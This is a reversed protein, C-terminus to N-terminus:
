QQAPRANGRAILRELLEATDRHVIAPGGARGRAGVGVAADSPTRGQKDKADLIAGRGALVTVVSNLGSRAAYHLATAGSDNVANVDAGHQLALQVANLMEPETGVDESFASQGRGLGSALMLANGGNKQVLSVDAGHALLIEMARYDGHMAARMLPTTGEGLVPDGPTHARTLTATKLRANADAGYDLLMAVIDLATRRDNVRRPPRGYVEGLSNMDVATYLPGMGVSDAINTDAGHEILVAATDFHANTIARVLATTQEPDVADLDAGAAALARAADAAGDRAAYMLPTWNGRPLFTLVGELGFRDKPFAVTKSRGNADAGREILLSVVAAHNESAAWMLATEGLLDERAAINAGHDLLTKVAAVNGTRAATMLVTQGQAVTANPDAGAAILMEIIAANGNIAALSLPTSGYRNAVRASAGAALLMRTMEVDDSQAAWHLPTTGDPEAANVDAKNKLLARVADRNGARVADSLRLVDGGVAVTAALLAAALLTVRRHRM